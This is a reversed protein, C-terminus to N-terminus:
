RLTQSIGLARALQIAHSAQSKADDLANHHTGSRPIRMDPRLGKLTRYCRHCWFAWPPTIKVAEYAGLLLVCDFDAGNGWVNFPPEIHNMFWDTFQGIADRLELQGDANTIEKRAAEEQGMWWLVTSADMCLGSEVCSQLTIRAYFTEGLTTDDFLVAGISVIASGPRNGMTELDIMVNHM